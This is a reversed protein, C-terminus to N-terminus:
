VVLSFTTINIQKSNPEALKRRSSSAREHSELQDDLVADTCDEPRTVRTYPYPSLRTNKRPPSTDWERTRKRMEFSIARLFWSRRSYEFTHNSSM